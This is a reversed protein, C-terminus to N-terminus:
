CFGEVFLGSGQVNWDCGDADGAVSEDGDEGEHTAPPKEELDSLDAEEAGGEEAVEFGIDQLLPTDVTEPRLAEDRGDEEKGETSEYHAPSLATSRQLRLM